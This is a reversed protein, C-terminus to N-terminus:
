AMPVTAVLEVEFGDANALYAAHHDPGGAHPHREPFLLSWGREGALGVLHDLEDPSGADFALHNLGPLLRNHTPGEAAPSEEVVVYTRGLIWSRGRPWNQYPVYGLAVLLWGFSDVARDLDPVWLEVHHIVGRHDNKTPDESMGALTHSCSRLGITACVGAPPRPRGGDM